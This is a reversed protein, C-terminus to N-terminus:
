RRLKLALELGFDFDGSKKICRPYNSWQLLRCKLLYFSNLVCTPVMKPECWVGWGCRYTTLHLLCVGWVGWVHSLWVILSVFWCFDLVNGLVLLLSWGPYVVWLYASMVVMVGGDWSSMSQYTSVMLYVNCRDGVDVIKCSLPPGVVCVLRM